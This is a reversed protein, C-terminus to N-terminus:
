SMRRKIRAVSWVTQPRTRGNMTSALLLFPFECRIDSRPWQGSMSLMPRLYFCRWSLPQSISIILWQALPCNGGPFDAPESLRPFTSRETTYRRMILLDPNHLAPVVETVFESATSHHSFWHFLSSTNDPLSGMDRSSTSPNILAFPPVVSPMFKAKQLKM